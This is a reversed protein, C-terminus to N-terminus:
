YLTIRARQIEKHAIVNQVYCWASYVCEDFMLSLAPTPALLALSMPLPLSLFFLLPLPLFLRLLLAPM